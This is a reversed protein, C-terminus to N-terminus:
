TKDIFYWLFTNIQTFINLPLFIFTKKLRFDFIKDHVHYDM